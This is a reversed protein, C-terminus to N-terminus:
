GFDEIMDETRLRHCRRMRIQAIACEGGSGQVEKRGRVRGRMSRHLMRPFRQFRQATRGEERCSELERWCFEKPPM